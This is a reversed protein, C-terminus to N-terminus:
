IDLLVAPPAHGSVPRRGRSPAGVGFEGSQSPAHVASLVSPVMSSHKKVLQALNQVQQSTKQLATLAESAQRLSLTCTVVHVCLSM